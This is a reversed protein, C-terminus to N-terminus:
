KQQLISHIAEQVLIFNDVIYRGHVFCGQNEPIINPLIGKLLNTIVKTILKYGINCLSIPQFKNFDSAGKEKPILALFTSNMSGGIKQYAQSMLVMNQLDNKVIHWFVHLFRPMFGDLGLAKDPEMAFLGVKIEKRIVKAELQHNMRSTIMSPVVDLIM